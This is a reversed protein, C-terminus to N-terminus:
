VYSQFMCSKADHFPYFFYFKLAYKEFIQRFNASEGIKWAMNQRIRAWYITETELGVIKM